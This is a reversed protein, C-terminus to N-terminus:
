KNRLKRTSRESSCGEVWSARKTRGNRSVMKGAIMPDVPNARNKAADECGANVLEDPGKLRLSSQRDTALIDQAM